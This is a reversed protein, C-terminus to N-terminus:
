HQIKNYTWDTNYKNRQGTSNNITKTEITSYMSQFLMLWLTHSRGALSAILLAPTFVRDAQGLSSVLDTSIHILLPPFLDCTLLCVHLQTIKYRKMHPCPARTCDVCGPRVQWTQWNRENIHSSYNRRNESPSVYISGPLRLYFM